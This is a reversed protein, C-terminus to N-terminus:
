KEEGGAGAAGADTRSDCAAYANAQVLLALRTRCLPNARYRPGAHTADRLTHRGRLWASVCAAKAEMQETLESIIDQEHQIWRKWRTYGTGEYLRTFLRLRRRAQLLRWVLFAAETETM